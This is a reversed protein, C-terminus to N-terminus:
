EGKREGGRGDSDERRERDSDGQRERDSDGREERKRERGGEEGLLVKCLVFPVDRDREKERNYLGERAGRERGGKGDICGGGWREERGGGKREEEHSILMFSLAM